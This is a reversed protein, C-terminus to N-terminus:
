VAVDELVTGKFFDPRAESFFRHANDFTFARFQYENLWGHEVQEWVEPMV